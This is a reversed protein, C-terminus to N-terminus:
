NKVKLDVKIGRMATIIIYAALWTWFGYEIHTELLTNISWILLLPLILLNLAITIIAVMLAEPKNM